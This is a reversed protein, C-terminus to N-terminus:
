RIGVRVDKVALIGVMVADIGDEKRLLKAM